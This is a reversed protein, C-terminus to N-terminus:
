NENEEEEGNVEEEFECVDCELVNATDLREGELGVDGIDSQLKLRLKPTQSGGCKPCGNTKMAEAESGRVIRWTTSQM